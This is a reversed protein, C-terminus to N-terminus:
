QLCFKNWMCDRQRLTIAYIKLLLYLKETNVLSVIEPVQEAPIKTNNVLDKAFNTLIIAGRKSWGGEFLGLTSRIIPEIQEKPFDKQACIEEIFLKTEDPVANYRSIIGPMLEKPFDKDNLM